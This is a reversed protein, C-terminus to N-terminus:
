AEGTGTAAALHNPDALVAGATEVHRGRLIADDLGHPGAVGTRLAARADGLRRRGRMQDLAAHRGLRQQRLHSDRLEALVHREVALRLDERAM